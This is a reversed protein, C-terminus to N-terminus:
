LSHRHQRQAANIRKTETKVPTRRLFKAEGKIGSQAFDQLLASEVLQQDLQLEECM